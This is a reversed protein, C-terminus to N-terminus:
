GDFRRDVSEFRMAEVHARVVADVAKCAVDGQGHHRAVDVADAVDADAVDQPRLFLFAHLSPGAQGGIRGESRRELQSQPGTRGDEAAVEIARGPL